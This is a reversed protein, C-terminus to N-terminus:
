SSIDKGQIAEDRVHNLFKQLTRYTNYSSRVYLGERLFSVFSEDHVICLLAKLLYSEAYVLEAHRHLRSMNLIDQVTMSKVWSTISGLWGIEKKRLADALQITHKLADIAASIDTKQFTMMSKLFLIFSHGLSHYLSTNQKPELIAEAESIRSNLFLDMAQRVQSIDLLLSDQAAQWNKSPINLSPLPTEQEEETKTPMMSSMSQGMRSMTRFSMPVNITSKSKQELGEPRKKSLLPM